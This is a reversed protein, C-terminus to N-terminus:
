LYDQKSILYIKTNIMDLTANDVLVNILNVDNEPQLHFEVVNSSLPYQRVAVGTVITANIM